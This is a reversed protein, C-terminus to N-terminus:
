KSSHLGQNKNYNVATQCLGCPGKDMLVEKIEKEPMGYHRAVGLPGGNNTFSERLGDYEPNRRKNKYMPPLVGRDCEHISGDPKFNIMGYLCGCISLRRLVDKSLEEDASLKWNNNYLFELLKQRTKPVYPSGKNREFSKVNWHIMPDSKHFGHLHSSRGIFALPEGTTDVLNVGLKRKMLQYFTEHFVYPASLGRKLREDVHWKDYSIAIDRIVKRGNKMRMQHAKLWLYIEHLALVRNVHEVTTEKKGKESIVRDILNSGEKLIIEKYKSKIRRNVLTNQSFVYSIRDVILDSLEKNNLEVDKPKITLNEAFIANTYLAVRINKKAFMAIAEQLHPYISIEGGTLQVIKEGKKLLKECISVIRELRTIPMDGYKSDGNLCHSCALNCRDTLEVSISVM